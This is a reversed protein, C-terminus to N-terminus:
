LNEHHTAYRLRLMRKSASDLVAITNDTSANNAVFVTVEDELHNTRVEAELWDLLRALKSARNFTPVGITLLAGTQKTRDQSEGTLCDVQREIFTPDVTM